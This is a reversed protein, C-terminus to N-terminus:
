LTLGGGDALKLASAGARASRVKVASLARTFDDSALKNEEAVRLLVVLPTRAPM